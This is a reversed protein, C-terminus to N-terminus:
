KKLARDLWQASRAPVTHGDVEVPQSSVNLAVRQGDSMRWVLPVRQTNKATLHEMVPNALSAPANPVFLQEPDASLGSLARAALQPSLGWDVRDQPLVRLDDSLFLAGGAMAPLLAAAEVEPRSLTRLLTPDADLLTAHALFFRAALSRAQNAIFVWSPGLQASGLAEIAIDFGFRYADVHPFTGLVPAGVGLIFTDEGAASRMIEMGCRYAEMGTVARQREGEFSGAFLFDLKLYSYGWGVIRQILAHLHAAAGAHTVDLVLMRGRKSHMYVAGQVFWDPHARATVSSEHALFPALWVGSAYGQHTLTRSLGALGEPFKPNPEWDGWNQQWGDDVIVYPPVAPSPKRLSTLRELLPRARQANDEVAQANLGEDWLEYWSMWGAQAQCAHSRRRSPLREGYRRLMGHLDPGAEICFCESSLSQGPALQVREGTAGSILRLAFGADASSDASAEARSVTLYSRFRRASLAGAFLSQPGGGVYTYWWSLESGGRILELDGQMRLASDIAQPSAAPGLALVGSQSWSQFGNSLWACAGEVQAVGEFGLGEVECAVRAEFSLAFLDGELELKLVGLEGVVVTLTDGAIQAHELTSRHWVGAIRVCPVLTLEIGPLGDLTLGKRGVCLAFAQASEPKNATASVGFRQALSSTSMGIM